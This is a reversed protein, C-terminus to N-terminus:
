QFQDQTVYVRLTGSALDVTGGTDNRHYVTITNAATVEAWMRTGSLANTFSVQAANGLNAGSLTFSTSQQTATALSPPDWTTSATLIRRFNPGGFRTSGGTGGAVNFGYSISGDGSLLHFPVATTSYNEMVRGGTQDYESFWLVPVNTSAGANAIKFVAQCGTWPVAPHGMLGEVTVTKVNDAKVLYFVHNVSATNYTNVILLPNRIVLAGGQTVDATSVEFWAEVDLTGSGVSELWPCDFTIATWTRTTAYRANTSPSSNRILVPNITASGDTDVIWRYVTHGYSGEFHFTRDNSWTWLHNFTAQDSRAGLYCGSHNEAIILNSFKNIDSQVGWFWFDFGRIMAHDITISGGRWDRIAYTGSGYNGRGNSLAVTTGTYRLYGNRFCFGAAVGNYNADDWNASDDAGLKICEGTGTYNIGNGDFASLFDFTVDKKTVSLTSSVKYGGTGLPFVITFGGSTYIAAAANIAAQIAATDDTTGDGKAGYSPDMVNFVGRGMFTQQALYEAIDDGSFLNGQDGNANPARWMGVLRHDSTLINTM